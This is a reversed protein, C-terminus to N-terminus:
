RILRFSYHDSTGPNATEYRLFEAWIINDGGSQPIRKIFFRGSSLVRYCRESGSGEVPGTVPVVIVRKGNGTYDSFCIYELQDTDAAFRLAIGQTTPGSMNGQESPICSGSDTCCPYENSLECRYVDGGSPKLCPDGPCGGEQQAYKGFDLPAYSGSVGEPPGYKLKYEYACGPLFTQGLPPQAALPLSSPCQWLAEATATAQMTLKGLEPIVKAFYSVMGTARERRATVTVTKRAWNTAIDGLPVQVPTPLDEYAQNNPAFDSARAAVAAKAATSDDGAAAYASAGALAAADAANQLQNRTTMLRAMDVGLGVFGLMVLLFFALWVLTVGRQSRRSERQPPSLAGVETGATGAAVGAGHDGCEGARAVRRGAPGGLGTWRAIGPLPEAPSQVISRIRPASTSM